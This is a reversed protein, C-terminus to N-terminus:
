RDHVSIWVCVWVPISVPELVVAASQATIQDSGAPAALSTSAHIHAQHLDL